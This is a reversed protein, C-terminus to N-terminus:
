ARKAGTKAAILDALRRREVCRDYRFSDALAVAEADGVGRFCREYDGAMPEALVISRVLTQIWRKQGFPFPDFDPYEEAFVAEIPAMIHRISADTTAWSDVGLRAKKEIVPGIRGMWPSDAAAHVLGQGGIDKYAWLSWSAGHAAYLDLQDSLMRYKDDERAPDGAFVPGFEGVWIPTGTRRMFATRELFTQEIHARDVYVGRTVGPYPGGFVMGPTKYDHVAYVTNPYPDASDFATFETGYRNGDLFIVHDPDIARVAAVVRDYFPKIRLGGADGPENMINYGAVAARGKYRDAFREWLHVVRDQFHRHRWFMAHHTPNNSHWDMNQCGPLAHLDIISYLGHREATAIVADLRALGSEQIDFPRDDDEFHRYNVPIRVHNMGLGALYRADDDSFYADVFRDFFLAYREDGLARKMADTQLSETSPFGTLFNEM